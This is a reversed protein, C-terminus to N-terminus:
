SFHIELGRLFRTPHCSRPRGDGSYYGHGTIVLRRKARTLAVYFVRAEEAIKEPDRSIAAWYFPYINEVACPIIVTDFELGKARHVTSVVLRDDDFILDPERYLLYRRLHAGLLDALPAPECTADMHRLLKSRVEGEFTWKYGPRIKKVHDSFADFVEQFSVKEQGAEDLRAMLPGLDRGFRALIKEKAAVVRRAKRARKKADRAIRLLLHGTARVDDMADHSNVGSLKLFELLSELTHRPARPYLTRAARLSCYRETEDLPTLGVRRLNNNLVSWDFGINHAVLPTDGVFHVFRALGERPDIGDRALKDKDIGHIGKTEELSQDTRLFLEMSRSPKGRNLELAAIQVIDVKHINLGTTEVDFVILKGRHVLEALRGLYWDFLEGREGLVDLPSVAATFLENTIRRAEKLTKLNGFLKLLRMWSIRDSPNHLVALFAMFDKTNKKRFLDHESVLFHRMGESSLDISFDVADSNTRALVALSEGQGLLSPIIEHCIGLREEKNDSYFLHQMAGDRAGQQDKASIQLSCNLVLNAYHKYFRLLYAPSRYNTKLTHEKFDATEEQLKPLSGGMFSFISQQADGLVVLHSTDGTLLNLILWQIANLDQAEDVQVWCLRPSGPDGNEVLLHHATFSLIDDFDIAMSTKKLGVYKAYTKRMVRFLLPYDEKMSERSNSSGGLLRRSEEIVSSPLELRRQTELRSFRKALDILPGKGWRALFRKRKSERLSLLVADLADTVFLGADEEDLVAGGISFHGHRMLFRIGYAHFNGVFLNRCSSPMREIMVRAARNTFTLCAMRKPDVGREVAMRARHSLLETKGSGPPAFVKHKGTTLDIVEQQAKDFIM